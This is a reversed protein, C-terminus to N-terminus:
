VLKKFVAEEGKFRSPMEISNGSGLEKLKAFHSEDMAGFVIPRRDHHNGSTWISGENDCYRKFLTVAGINTRLTVYERGWADVGRMM